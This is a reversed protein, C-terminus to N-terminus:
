KIEAGNIVYNIPQCQKTKQPQNMHNHYLLSLALALQIEALKADTDLRQGQGVCRHASSQAYGPVLMLRFYELPDKESYLTSALIFFM